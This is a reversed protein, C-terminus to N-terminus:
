IVMVKYDDGFVVHLKKGDLVPDEILSNIDSM